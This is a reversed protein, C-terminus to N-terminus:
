NSLTGLKVRLIRKVSEDIRKETIKGTKVANLVAAYSKKFNVPMLVIDVGAQVSMVVATENGYKKVIAGMNMADTIVIGNYNLQDRLVNTIMYKSLSSPTNNGTVKPASIHSIMIFPIHKAVAAQFPILENSKMQALTKNTYAFGDHTDGVTAGHGPFHKFCALVDQDALGQATALAMNKVITSSSSFSRTGIVKNNPNSLVDAVPAFDLNFGYSHLYTGITQGVQYAKATNKTAGIKSMNSFKTVSFKPHNAIRAVTGGEEDISLFLPLGTVQKAYKQSNATMVKLQAPSVLNSRFYILGGVPYNKLATQTATGASTVKSYGTLAEPTVIFMQAVKEALTMSALQKAVLQETRNVTTQTVKPVIKRQVKTPSTFSFLDHPILWLALAGIVTVILISKIFYKM